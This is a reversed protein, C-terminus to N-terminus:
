VWERLPEEAGDDHINNSPMKTEAQYNNNIVAQEAAAIAIASRGHQMAAAVAQTSSAHPGPHSPPAQQGGQAASKAGAASLPVRRQPQASPPPGSSMSQSSGPVSAPPPLPPEGEPRRRFCSLLGRRSKAKGHLYVKEDLARIEQLLRAEESRAVEVDSEKRGLEGRTDRLQRQVRLIEQETSHIDTLCVKQEEEVSTSELSLGRCEAELIPTNEAQRRCEDNLTRLQVQLEEVQNNWSQHESHLKSTARMRAERAQKLHEILDSEEHGHMQSEQRLREEQITTHARWTDIEQRQAEIRAMLDSTLKDNHEKRLVGAVELETRGSREMEIQRHLEAQTQAATRLQANLSERVDCQQAWQEESVHIQRRVEEVEAQHRVEIANQQAEENLLEGRLAAHALKSAHLEATVADGVDDIKRTLTGITQGEDHCRDRLRRMEASLKVQLEETMDREEQCESLLEQRENQLRTYYEGCQGEAVATDSGTLSAAEARLEAPTAALPYSGTSPLVKEKWVANRLEDRSIVGGRKTDICDFLDETRRKGCNLCFYLEPPFAHGCSCMFPTVPPTSNDDGIYFREPQVGDALQGQFSPVLLGEDSVMPHRISFTVKVFNHDSLPVETAPPHGGDKLNTTAFVKMSVPVHRSMAMYDILQGCDSTPGAEAQTYALDWASSTLADFASRQVEKKGRAGAPMPAGFDGALVALDDTAARGNFFHVIRQVQLHREEELFNISSRDEICGGTLQTNFVYVFPGDRHRRHRLKGWVVSRVALPEMQTRAQLDVTPISVDSSTRETGTDVAEWESGDVRVYLENVLLREVLEEPTSALLDPDNYHMQHLPQACESSSVLLSYGVQSLVNIDQIGEQVCIVDPLPKTDVIKRLERRALEQDKPYSAYYQLNMTMVVLDHMDRLHQLGRLCEDEERELQSNRRWPPPHAVGRIARHAAAAQAASAAASDSGAGAGHSAVPGCASRGVGSFGLRGGGVDIDIGNGFMYDPDRWRVLALASSQAEVTVCPVQPGPIELSLRFGAASRVACAASPGADPDLSPRVPRPATGGSGQAWV